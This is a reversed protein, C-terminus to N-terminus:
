ASLFPTIDIRIGPSFTSSLTCTEIFRGKATAPRSRVIAEIVARGNKEIDEHGGRHSPYKPRTFLAYIGLCLLLVQLVFVPITTWYAFSQVLTTLLSIKLLFQSSPCVTKACLTDFEKPPGYGRLVEHYDAWRCTYTKLTDKHPARSDIVTPFAISVIGVLTSLLASVVVLGNAPLQEFTNTGDDRSLM